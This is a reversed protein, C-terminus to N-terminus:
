PRRFATPEGGGLRSIRAVAEASPEITVAMHWSNAHIIDARNIMMAVHGRWFGTAM